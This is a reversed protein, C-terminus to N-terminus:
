SNTSRQSYIITSPAYGFEENVNDIGFERLAVRILAMHHIAHETNYHVERLYSSKVYGTENGSMVELVVEADNKQIGNILLQIHKIAEEKQNEILINRERNDYNILGKEHGTIAAEALEIVHRVHRGITANGLMTSERCYHESSVGKLLDEIASLQKRFEIAPMM